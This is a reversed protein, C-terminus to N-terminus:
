LGAPLTCACTSGADPDTSVPWEVSLKPVAGCFVGMVTFALDGAGSCASNPSSVGSVILEAYGDPAIAQGSAGLNTGSFHAPFTPGLVTFAANGTNHLRYKTLGPCAGGSDYSLKLTQIPVGNSDTFEFSGAFLKTILTVEHTPAGPENTTFSLKGMSVAGADAGASAAPPTVALSGSEGPAIQPPLTTKVQYGADASASSIVLPEDGANRIVLNVDPMVGGCGVDVELESQFVATPMASAGGEGTAGGESSGSGGGGKAGAGSAGATSNSTGAHGGFSSSGGASM